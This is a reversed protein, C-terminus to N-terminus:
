DAHHAGTILARFEDLHKWATGLKIESINKPSVGYERALTKGLVGKSLQEIIARVDQESLKANHNGEGRLLHKNAVVWMKEPPPLPTVSRHCPVCLWQVSLPNDYGLYHHGHIMPRGDRAQGPSGGCMECIDPRRLLGTSIAHRVMRRAKDPLM